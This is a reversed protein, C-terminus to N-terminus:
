ETKHAQQFANFDRLDVDGEGDLDAYECGGPYAVGPGMMCSAFISFDDPDIDGDLDLDGLQAEPGAVITSRVNNDESFEDILASEDVIAYLTATGDIFPGANEWTWPTDRFAGPVIPETITFTALVEGDVADQRLVLEVDIATLAGDNAVRATIFRHPGAAQVVIESVTLDPALIEIAAVNNLPDRDEQVGSPDIVVYIDRPETSPPVLWTTSIEAQTGGVLPGALIPMDILTGGGAPDGDYFAVDINEAPKDGLNHITATITAETGPLPNAPTISIDEATLSLDGSVTHQLLYLDSQDPVPVNDIVVIEGGVEVERTEYLMQVKNYAALLAGDANFVPAFAHEMTNDETLRRPQTWSTVAPMYLAYWM